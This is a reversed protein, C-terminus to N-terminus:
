SPGRRPRRGRRDPPPPAGVQAASPLFRPPYSYVQSTTQTSIIISLIVPAGVILISLIILVHLISRQYPKLRM